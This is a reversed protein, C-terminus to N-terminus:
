RVTEVPILETCAIAADRDASRATRRPDALYEEFSDRSPFEYLQVELPQGDVTWEPAVQGGLNRGLLTVAAGPAAVAPVIADLHPGDHLTLRYGHDASGKYVGGFHRGSMNCTPCKRLPHIRTSVVYSVAIIAIILVAVM